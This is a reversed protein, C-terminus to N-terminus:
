EVRETNAEWVQFVLPDVSTDELVTITQGWSSILEYNSYGDEQCYNSINNWGNTVTYFSLGNSDSISYNIVLGNFDNFVLKDFVISDNEYVIVTKAQSDTEFRPSVSFPISLTFPLYESPINITDNFRYTGKKITNGVVSIDDSIGGGGGDMGSGLLGIIAAIALIMCVGAVARGLSISNKTM